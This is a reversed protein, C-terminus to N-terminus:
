DLQTTKKKTDREIKPFFNAPLMTLSFSAAHTLRIGPIYKMREFM